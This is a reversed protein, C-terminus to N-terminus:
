VKKIRRMGTHQRVRKKADVMPAQSVTDKAGEAM